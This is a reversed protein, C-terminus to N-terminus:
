GDLYLSPEVSSLKPSRVLVPTKLTIHCNVLPRHKVRATIGLPTLRASRGGGYLRHTLAARARARERNMRHGALTQLYSLHSDIGSGRRPSKFKSDAKVIAYIDQGNFQISYCPKARYRERLLCASLSPDNETVQRASQPAPTRAHSGADTSGLLILPTDKKPQKTRKSHTKRSTKIKRAGGHGGTVRNRHTHTATRPCAGRSLTSDEPLSTLASRGALVARAPKHHFGPWRM